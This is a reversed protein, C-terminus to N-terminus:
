VRSAVASANAPQAEGTAPGFPVGVGPRGSESLGHRAHWRRLPGPAWWNWGGALRMFAPALVGRVLTADVVVALAMGLGLLKLFTVGSTVFTLWVVAILAAAATILRGTREVGVAVAQRNDGTEVWTERVRSLLFVEYDMSLGFAVCFMLLPMTTDLTGTVIPHGVLGLLHGQQFIFVIAGFSASLSLLNLVLAKFPILISGTFLFLVLLMALAIILGALPLRTGIAHETDLLSASAGGVVFPAPAPVDRIAEVLHEGSSSYSETNTDVQLWTGRASEFASAAPGPAAIREGNSFTGAASQVGVVRDLRSLETAFQGVQALDLPESSDVVQL